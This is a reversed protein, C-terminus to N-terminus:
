EDMRVLLHQGRVLEKCHSAAGTMKTREKGKNKREEHQQGKLCKNPDETEQKKEVRRVEQELWGLVERQKAIKGERKNNRKINQQKKHQNGYEEPWQVKGSTRKNWKTM